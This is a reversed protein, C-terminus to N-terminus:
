TFKGYVKWNKQRHYFKFMSIENKIDLLREKCKLSSSSRFGISYLKEYYELAKEILKEIEECAECVTTFEIKFKDYKLGLYSTHTELDYKENLINKIYYDYMYFIAYSIQFFKREFLSIAFLILLMFTIMLLFIMTVSNFLM